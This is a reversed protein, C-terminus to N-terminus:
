GADPREISLARTFGTLELVKYAMPSPSIIALDRDDKRLITRIRALQGLGSADIFSLGALDVVVLSGPRSAATDLFGGFAPATVMDLEGWPLVTTRDRGFTLSISFDAPRGELLETV